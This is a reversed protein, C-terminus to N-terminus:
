SAAFGIIVALMVIGLLIVAAWTLTLSTLFARGRRQVSPDGRGGDGPSAPREPRTPDM